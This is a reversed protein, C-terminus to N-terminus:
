LTKSMYVRQYGQETRRGTEAYGRAVYLALNEHMLEHTYLELTPYGLTAAEAEAVELLRAGLGRGQWDPHVAINDLLVTDDREILVLVGIVQRRHDLVHM